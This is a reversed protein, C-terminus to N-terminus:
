RIRFVWLPRPNKFSRERRQVLHRPNRRHCREYRNGDNQLKDDLLGELTLDHSVGAHDCNHTGQLITSAGGSLFTLNGNRVVFLLTEDEGLCSPERYIIPHVAIPLRSLQKVLTRRIALDLAWTHLQVSGAIRHIYNHIGLILRLGNLDGVQGGLLVNVKGHDDILDAHIDLNVANQPDMVGQALQRTLIPSRNAHSGLTTPCTLNTREGVM